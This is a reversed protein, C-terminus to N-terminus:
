EVKTTFLVVSRLLPVNGVVSFEEGATTAVFSVPLAVRVTSIAERGERKKLTSFTGYASRSNGRNGAM